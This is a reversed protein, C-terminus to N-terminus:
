QEGLAQIDGKTPESALVIDAARRWEPTGRTLHERARMAFVLAQKLDGAYYRSEASALRAEGDKDQRDYLISLQYWAFSNDKERALAHQLNALAEDEWQPDKSVIQAQALNIRLLPAEPMLDVSRQHAAIAEDARGAELLVQGKLEWFYANFPQGNILDTIMALAKETEANQYFAIARAYRGPLTVVTDRYKAFTQGPPNLFGEIKAQMMKLAMVDEPSDAKAQINSAAVRSRLAAIRASSLPHTRFYPYRKAESMVEQFRFREFFAVLGDGSQETAELYRMGAQDAASEQNRSYRLYSLTGFYQASGLLGIAADPRGAAAALVGLGMTLLLPQMAAKIGQDSRAIHGAAIHGTEHAIVGKLENPTEAKLILGTNFYMNRWATVFANIQKDGILHIEVSEPPLGAAQIIPHAYRDLTEEIETDRLLTQALATQGMAVTLMVVWCLLRAWSPMVSLPRCSCTLAPRMM